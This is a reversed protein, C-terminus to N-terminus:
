LDCLVRAGRHNREKKEGRGRGEAIYLILFIFLFFFSVKKIVGSFLKEKERESVRDRKKAKKSEEKKMLLLSFFSKKIFSLSPFFNSSLCYKIFKYRM